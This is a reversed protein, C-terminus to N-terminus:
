KPLRPYLALEFDDPKARWRASAEKTYIVKELVEKLLENKQVPTKLQPYLEIVKEVKPIIIKTYEQKVSNQKLHKELEEKDIRATSIKEKILKSRELFTDTSYIGQELLDHLNNLQKELTKLEKNLTEINRKILEVETSNEKKENKSFELKYNDLWITLSQLLKDEVLQLHSSVNNCSTAACMLTDPYKGGYPRRVMKRGCVGCVIIGALPNKVGRYKPAPVSPNEALKKQALNFVEPKVLPEHLGDTLTWVNVDARPREKIMEGNVMKKVQPRFNWRVKGIYVPNSLIGRISGIVWDGGKATPIKMDNLKRVIVSVGSGNIYLDYILKVVPAQELHPKLTYGKQGTIKERVYGYPPINGVFKGEKVSDLRGRQLRRNTTKYERRSMFLGFEFYEEDFEDNPNYVKMPTIIVTNSYKFTQAVIGQDITDGRALREVEVVMVGKWIGREVDILLQQMLPRASITEGSVLEKYIKTITLSMKKALDLLIKEHRAFTEGEGRIEAEEDARSKRLYICYSM